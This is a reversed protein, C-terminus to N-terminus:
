SHLQFHDNGARPLIADELRATGRTARLTGGSTKETKAAENTLRIMGGGQQRVDVNRDIDFNPLAAPCEGCVVVHVGTRGM